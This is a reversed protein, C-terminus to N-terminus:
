QSLFHLKTTWASLAVKFWRTRHHISGNYTLNRAKATWKQLAIRLGQQAFIEYFNSRICLRRTRDKEKCIWDHFTERDLFAATRVSSHPSSGPARYSCGVLAIYPAQVSTCSPSSRWCLTRSASLLPIHLTVRASGGVPNIKHKKPQAMSKSNEVTAKTVQVIEGFVRRM